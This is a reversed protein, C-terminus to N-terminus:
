SQPPMLGYSAPLTAPPRTGTFSITLMGFYRGRSSSKVNSLTVSVPYHGIGGSACNPKCLKLWLSGRGSANSATWGSWTMREVGEGADGCALVIESPRQSLVHPPASDCEAVVGPLAAVATPTPVPTAAPASPDSTASPVASPAPSAPPSVTNSASPASAPPSSGAAAGQSSCAASALGLGALAGVAVTMRAFNTNM